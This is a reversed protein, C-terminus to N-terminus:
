ATVNAKSRFWNLRKFILWDLLLAVLLSAGMLPLFCCLFVILLSMGIGLKINRSPTVPVGLTGAPRRIWWTVFGSVALLAALCAAIFNQAVNM